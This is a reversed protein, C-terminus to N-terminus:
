IRYSRFFLFFVFSLGSVYICPMIVTIYLSGGEHIFAKDHLLPKCLEIFSHAMGHLAVWSMHTVTSLESLVHDVPFPFPLQSWYEQRSFKMLLIFLCFYIFSSSSGWTQLYAVPSSCLAIVLLELFFSTAPCFHFCCDTKSTDPPSFSTRYQLSYQM